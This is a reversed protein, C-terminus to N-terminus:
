DVSGAAFAKKFLSEIHATEADTLAGFEKERARKSLAGDNQQLFRFLLDLTREPMDIYAEVDRRFADFRRLFATEQPLDEEITKQVCAYLFEAHLTADFYRYFDGTDNLIRVNFRDTPEWTVLPLLRKSYSELVLRYSDVKELIAASVPFVVGPPNFGGEALVHHILYRHIRGNGDDFPHIYVFGFALVAASIVADQHQAPGRDFASMGEILDYLDEPRASIHDPLPMQTIRDHEGVFGGECRVGLMVFRADGIVINQLRQLEELDIPRQGAEGIARGWRQVRDQPPNEGEIAYSSRSDKLLLFAATRALIDRPVDAVVARAKEALDLETFQKLAETRFVLPCFDPTGPMNNKVRYRAENREEGSFQLGPDIVTVYRGAAADPLDLQKGTLWEYLFWLRRAYGGTPSQRVIEELTESGIALFLRKLVALDLGEYKLAFTLHGELTSKPAHRPTMIRWDDRAFIRHREGIAFLTRPLPVSLNYADILAAYGAPTAIEPLRKEQFVNVPGSFQAEPAKAM